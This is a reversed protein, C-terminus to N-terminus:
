WCGCPFIYSFCKHMSTCCVIFVQFSIIGWKCLLFWPYLFLDQARKSASVFIHGWFVWNLHWHQFFYSHSDLASVGIWFLICNSKM